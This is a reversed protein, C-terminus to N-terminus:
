DAAAQRRELRRASTPAAVRMTPYWPSDERGYMWRWDATAPLAVWVNRGLSGALHAPASDCCLILDLNVMAAATDALDDIWPSLDQIPVDGIAVLPQKTEGVQLSYLQVGEIAALPAFMAPSLSRLRDRGHKPNGQWSIGIRLGHRPGLIERWRAVLDDPPSLYPVEAPVTAVETHFISPLNLLPAHLDFEPLPGGTAVIQDLGQCNQLLRVLPAQCDLVVRGGRERIMPLYRIFQITDGMGQEFHLLLTRGAFDEGQWLPQQFPRPRARQSTGVGITNPGVEPM